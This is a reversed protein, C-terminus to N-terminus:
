PVHLVGDDRVLEGIRVRHTTAVALNAVMLTLREIHEGIRVHLALTARQGGHLEHFEGASDQVEVSLIKVLQGLLCRQLSRLRSENFLRLNVDSLTVEPLVRRVDGLDYFICVLTEACSARRFLVNLIGCSETTTAHVNDSAARENEFTVGNRGNLCV